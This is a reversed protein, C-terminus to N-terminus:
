AKSLGGSEHVRCIQNEDCLSFVLEAGYGQKLLTYSTTVKEGNISIYPTKGSPIKGLYDLIDIILEPRKLSDTLTILNNKGVIYSDIADAIVSVTKDITEEYVYLAESLFEKGFSTMVVYIPNREDLSLVLSLANIAEICDLTVGDLDIYYVFGVLRFMIRKRAEESIQNLSQDLRRLFDNVASADRKDFIQSGHFKDVDVEGFVARILGTASDFRGTFGPIYPVLSRYISKALSLKRWGPLRFGAERVILNSAVLEEVLQKELGKFGEKGVDLWRYVGTLLALTKAWRSVKFTKSLGYITTATLSNSGDFFVSLSERRGAPQPLNLLLLPEDRNDVAVKPDLNLVAKIGNDLLTRLLVGSAILSDLDTSPVIRVFGYKRVGEIFESLENIISM